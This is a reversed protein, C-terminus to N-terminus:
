CKEIWNKLLALGLDASKEPHFQVGMVNGRQVMSAYRVGYETTGVIVSEDQPVVYYGHLFYFYNQDDIGSLLPSSGRKEVQNWGIQPVKHQRFARVDGAFAALGAVGESEDSREFLLQMGLCIGLFPRDAAIWRQLPTIFRQAALREMAAGFAGVGPLLAKDINGLAQPETVIESEEGLYDLAKKVSRLNGAGYDIIGIM